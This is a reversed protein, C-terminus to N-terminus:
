CFRLRLFPVCPSTMGTLLTRAGTSSTKRTSSVRILREAVRARRHFPRHDCRGGGNRALGSPHPGQLGSPGRLQPELHLRLARGSRAQRREDGPVHLPGARAMRVRGGPLDQGSRIDTMKTDPTLGMYELARHKSARRGEDQINDPNPVVGTISVVDEPSSGWTVTPPLNAVDLHVERDFHADPDSYLTQWYSKAMEWADGTPAKPRGQIYASTKEDPTILGARAGAEISMNCVTMRGEMSLARIAEGAYEIVHGTGGATGTEGIIALIIDKATVGEPLKGDVTIRMNKAKKQILTQTALVHEVESTGIGHALVGLADHTSTHSDGCVITMGPLTFSQEPGFIHVIGQRKDAESYYEVGFEKASDALTQVHLASEPDDIGHSRDTTPVNHDIVALTRDPAHVPRHAIHLGESAQPSTM